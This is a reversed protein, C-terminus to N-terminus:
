RCRRARAGRVVAFQDPHQQFQHFAQEGTSTYLNENLKRFQGGELKRMLQQQLQSMRAAPAAPAAAPAPAPTAAETPKQARAKKRPPAAVAEPKRRKGGQRGATADMPLLRTDPATAAVCTTFCPRTDNARSRAWRRLELTAACRRGGNGGERAPTRQQFRAVISHSMPPSCSRSATRTNSFAYAVAATCVQCCAMRWNGWALVASDSSAPSGTAFDELVSSSAVAAAAVVAETVHTRSRSRLVDM